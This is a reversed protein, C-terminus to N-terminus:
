WPGGTGDPLTLLREWLAIHDHLLDMAYPDTEMAKDIEHLVAYSPLLNSFTIAAYAPGLRLYHNLPFIRAALVIESFRLSGTHRWDWGKAYHYEALGWASSYLAGALLLAARWSHSSYSLRRNTSLSASFAIWAGRWWSRGSSPTPASSRWFSCPLWEPWDPCASNSYNSSRTM